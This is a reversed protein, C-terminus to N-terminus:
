DAYTYKDDINSTPSLQSSNHKSKGKKKKRKEPGTNERADDEAIQVKGSPYFLVAPKGHNLHANNNICNLPPLHARYPPPPTPPIVRRGFTGMEPPSNKTIVVSSPEELVYYYPETAPTPSGFNDQQNGNVRGKVEQTKDGNGGKPCGLDKDKSRAHSTEVTHKCCMQKAQLSVDSM